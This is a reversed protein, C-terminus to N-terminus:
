PVSAPRASALCTPASRARMPADRTSFPSPSASTPGIRCRPTGPSASSTSSVFYKQYWWEDASMIVTIPRSSKALHMAVIAHHGIHEGVEIGQDWSSADCSKRRAAEGQDGRYREEACLLGGRARENGIGHM